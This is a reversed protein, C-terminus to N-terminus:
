KSSISSPPSSALMSSNWSNTGQQKENAPAMLFLKGYQGPLPVFRGYAKAVNATEVRTGRGSISM